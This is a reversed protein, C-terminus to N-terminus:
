QRRDNQYRRRHRFLVHPKATGRTRKLDNRPFGNPRFQGYSGIRRRRDVYANGLVRPQLQPRELFQRNPARLVASNDVSTHDNPLPEFRSCDLHLSKRNLDTPLFEQEGSTVTM